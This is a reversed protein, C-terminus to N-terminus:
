SSSTGSWHACNVVSFALNKSRSPDGPPAEIGARQGIVGVVDGAVDGAPSPAMALGVAACPVAVRFLHGAHAVPELDPECRGIDTLPDHDAPAPGAWIVALLDGVDQANELLMVGMGERDAGGVPLKDHDGGLACEGSLDHRRRRRASPV